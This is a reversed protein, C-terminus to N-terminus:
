AFPVMSWPAGILLHVVIPIGLLAMLRPLQREVPLAFHMGGYTIGGIASGISNVAILAPGWAPMALATAFGPYGVELAGFSLTLAFTAAYIVLLERERLPGLLSRQPAVPRHKWWALGGSAYLMPVSAIVFCWALGFATRPTAVAVLVAVLAPGLTFSLEILV